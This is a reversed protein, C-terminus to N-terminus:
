ASHLFENFERVAMLRTKCCWSTVGLLEFVDLLDEQEQENKLARMAKFALFLHGLM